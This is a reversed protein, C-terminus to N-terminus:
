GEQREQMGYNLIELAKDKNLLHDEISNFKGLRKRADTMPKDSEIERDWFYLAARMSLAIGNENDLEDKATAIACWPCCEGHDSWEFPPTKDEILRIARSLVDICTFPAKM